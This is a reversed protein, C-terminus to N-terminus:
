NFKSYAITGYPAKVGKAFGASSVAWYRIKFRLGTLVVIATSTCAYRVRFLIALVVLLMRLPLLTRVGISLLATIVDAGETNM